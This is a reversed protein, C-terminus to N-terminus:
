SRPPPQSINLRSVNLAGSGSDFRSSFFEALDAMAKVQMELAAIYDSAEELVVPLSVKRCGPVLRGLDRGKRDLNNSKLKMIDVRPKKLRSRLNRRVFKNKYKNTLIARSWRSRGKCSMALVRDAAERVAQGRLRASVSESGLRVQSLAQMLKLRYVEQRTESKWSMIDDSNSNSNSNQTNQYKDNSSQKQMKKKKIQKLSDRSRETNSTVLNSTLSSM